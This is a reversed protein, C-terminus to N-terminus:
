YTSTYSFKTSHADFHLDYDELSHKGKWGLCDEMHFYHVEISDHLIEITENNTIAVLAILIRQKYDVQYTVVRSFPITINIQPPKDLEVPKVTNSINVLYSTFEANDFNVCVLLFQGPDYKNGRKM